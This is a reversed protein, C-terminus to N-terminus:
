KELLTMNYNDVARLYSATSANGALSGCLFSALTACSSITAYTNADPISDSCVFFTTAALSAVCVGLLAFGTGRWFRYSKMASANEPVSDLRLNLDKYSIRTGNQTEFQTLNMFGSSHVLLKEDLFSIATETKNVSEKEAFDASITEQAFVSSVLMAVLIFLIKKLKM